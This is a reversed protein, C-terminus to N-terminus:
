RSFEVARDLWNATYGEAWLAQRGDDACYLYYDALLAGNASIFPADPKYYTGHEDQFTPRYDGAQLTVDFDAGKTAIRVQSTPLHLIPTGQPVPQVNTVCGSLLALGLFLLALKM